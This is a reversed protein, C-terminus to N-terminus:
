RKLTFNGKIERGDDLELTFWYDSTPLEKGNFVGDWGRSSIRLDKLLKGYRDYIFIKSGPFESIGTIKWFDNFGDNNPTFFKPYDLVLFAESVIGCGKKDRVWVTYYNNPLNLFINSDQYAMDDLSYEYDGIGEAVVEVSNEEGSLDKVNIEKISAIESGITTTSQFARCGNENTVIVSYDAVESIEISNLDPGEEGTSWQYYAYGADTSLSVSSSNQCVFLDQPLAIEFETPVEIKFDNVDVCSSNNNVVRYFITEPNEKNTYSIELDNIGINADNLSQHFTVELNTQDGIIQPILDDFNFETFGDVDGTIDCSLLDSVDNATPQQPLIASGTADISFGSSGHARDVIVYYYDGAQVDIFKLYGNGDSGPGETTDIEDINLGTDATVGAGQPNTSSCRIASGLSTCSVNPGYVAFDYDDGPNDPILDFTFTGAEDFQFLLWITNNNFSYCAPATNGSLLFEDEGVGAPELGISSNGCIQLAFGCDNPNQSYASFAFLLFLLISLSKMLM